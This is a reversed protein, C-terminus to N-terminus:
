TAIVSYTKFTSRMPPEKGEEKFRRMDEFGRRHGEVFEPSGTWHKFNDESDWCSVILYTTMGEEGGKEFEPNNHSREFARPELIKVWQFGPMHDIAHARTAFLERFRERYEERCDIYNIAIFM